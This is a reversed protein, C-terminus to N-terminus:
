IFHLPFNTIELACEVEIFCDDEIKKHSVIVDMKYVYFLGDGM